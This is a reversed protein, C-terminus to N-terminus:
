DENITEDEELDEIRVLIAPDGAGDLFERISSILGIRYEFRPVQNRRRKMIIQSKELNERLKQAAADRGALLAFPEVERFRFLGATASLANQFRTQFSLKETLDVIENSVLDVIKEVTAVTLARPAEERRSLIMALANMTDANVPRSILYHLVRSLRPIGTLARGAGQILVKRASRPELLPHERQNLDAELADVILDQIDTPCRTFTWTLCRVSGNDSLPRRSANAIQEACQGLAADLYRQAQEALENPLVGDTGIPRLNTQTSPDRLTRSLLTALVSPNYTGTRHMQALLPIIGRLRDSGKWFEISPPEVIRIPIPPPPTRLKELIEQPSANIPDLRTWDLVIPARQLPEWEQSTMSLKAWSQGPTQRIRLEVGVDRTPAENLRVSWFRIEDEGKLIYFEIDQKGAIWRLDRYPPSIYERNAPLTAKSGILDEFQPKDRKMVALSIPTLRDFYHPLGREILRGARLGGRAAADWDFITVNPFFAQLQSSLISSFPAALPTMLFTSSIAETNGPDLRSFDTSLFIDGEDIEPAVINIWNGNNLRLIEIDGCRRSGCILKLGLTSRECSGEDLNPNAKIVSAHARDTLPRLGPGPLLIGYGDREPAVHDVHDADRRLRLKQVEIGNGSHILFCFLAGDAKQPILGCDLAHLFAAVPKWLLRVKRRDRHFLSLRRFQAAEDFEHLDPVNLIVDDADRALANVTLGYIENFVATNEQVLNDLMPALWERREPHGLEGWGLGRGHPAISAQPGAIWDGSRQKVAVTGLGGDVILTTELQVDPDEIEWDRAAVDRWGNIDLGSIRRM